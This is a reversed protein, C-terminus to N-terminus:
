KSDHFAHIENQILQIRKAYDSGAAGHGQADKLMDLLSTIDDSSYIEAPNDAQKRCIAHKRLSGSNVMKAQAPGYFLQYYESLLAQMDLDSELTIERLYM